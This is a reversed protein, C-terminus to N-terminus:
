DALASKESNYVVVSKISQGDQAFTFQVTRGEYFGIERPQEGRYNMIKDFTFAYQVSNSEIIGFGFRDVRLLKGINENVM